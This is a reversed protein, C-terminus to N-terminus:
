RLYVDSLYVPIFRRGVVTAKFAVIFIHVDLHVMSVESQYVRCDNDKFSLDQLKMSM